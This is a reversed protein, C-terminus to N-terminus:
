DLISIAIALLALVMAFISQAGPRPTPAPWSWYKSISRDLWLGTAWLAYTLGLRHGDQLMLALWQPIPLPGLHSALLRAVDPQLARRLLAIAISVWATSLVLGLGLRFRQDALIQLPEWGSYDPVVVGAWRRLSLVVIQILVVAVFLLDGIAFM